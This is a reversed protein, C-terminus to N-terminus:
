IKCAGSECSDDVAEVIEATVGNQDSNADAGIDRTNHYYATKVGLWHAYIIDDMMEAVPLKDGEYRTPDYNTNLSASQDIWCTAMAIISIAGHNYSPSAWPSEYSGALWEIDPAVQRLIGDKSQKVTVLGRPPEMGNTANSIQSSTNHSFAGNSLIYQEDPTSVDWTHEHGISTVSKLLVSLKQDFVIDDEETLEDVRKFTEVGDVTKVKLLHNGTFKYKKGDEFEVEYVPVYGNYYVSCVERDGALMTPKIDLRQQVGLDEYMQVDIGGDVLIQGLTKVSGDVMLMENDKSQCESPMLATLTANRLGHTLISKRLQEWTGHKAHINELKIDAGLFPDYFKEGYSEELQIGTNALKVANQNARDQPLIGKSYRSNEWGLFKGKEKALNNSAKLLAYQILEFTQYTLKNASGDSYKKGNKALFHAFNIVGIGINRYKDTSTRGALVPFDQYELLADIARISIDALEMLENFSDIRSINFAALTCLAIEGNPDNIDNLPKTPLAIELCLNSMRTPAKISDFPGQMNVNDVNMIYVRGTQAREQMLTGLLEVAPVSKKPISADNEYMTYLRVFKEQDEFFADYLGPVDSPSFLTINQQHLYRSYFLKSLQVGYDLHRVRNEEVGRNNKLVLLNEVEGHWIPYFLTAAGGRVAM